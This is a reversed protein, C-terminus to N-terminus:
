QVAFILDDHDNYNGTGCGTPADAGQFRFRARIAQLSGAPLVYDRTWVQVGPATMTITTGIKTWSPAAANSTYYLELFDSAPTTWVWVTATIRVTKGAAFPGGDLTEVKLRDNSEDSHFTGSTGDACSDNITNPQNPEPGVSGRGLLLAPGSDCSKGIVTCKPAQLTPDWEATVDPVGLKFCLDDHDDFAGAGCAAASGGRRLRARVAAESGAPLTHNIGVTQLGNATPSVTGILSWAPASSDPAYYFDVRDQTFDTVWAKAEIRVQGGPAMIQGTPSFVRVYDISEDVHYTGSTGDPCADITNPQNPENGGTITDRGNVLTGTDCAQGFNFCRPADCTGGDYRSRRDTGYGNVRLNVVTSRTVAGSTGQVQFSYNGRPPDTAGLTVTLTSSASGNAPPSVTGPVFGCGVGSPNSACALSVTGTFGDTSTATCSTTASEGEWITLSSPSCSMTFDPGAFPTGSACNSVRGYCASSTGAAVVNYYYTRGNAVATDTYATGSTVEAILAKGFNCGAYGESRFVWYRTAGAVPTWSLANQFVGATVTLTSAATPGAACGSNTPTPTACAIGHRNYAAHLATMHPTGNAVNGDDDDAALWQMYGNTAGCGDSSSGCTCAHWNGINGSGQYFVKNGVIFATQDDLSFPAAQLDRRVFDWAAQRTATAACHVQRGCPGGGSNCATCMFGLATDPTNDAHKAWDADRVGSCDTDCHQGATQDEDQNFGTGDATMGCGPNVTQFFGHGVCSAQLRYIAAIDAYGESSNSLTGITDNDDIGHGWEHDFVAAIEGTNRCGGGSRYFNVSTGNWFANCTANLNMNSTLQQNLWANGPLYGKAQEVLKNLEYIGSRSAATNGASTGAPVTCDHDNNAGGLDLPMTTTSQNMAGCTDTTRVFSGSFTTTLTGGPYDVVGASDTFNNPAALATDVFSMPSQPQMTGCTEPTPCIGTNTLPYIGGMVRRKVYHNKDQFALVEGSQADVLVEWRPHEPDRQFLFSWVLSHRYGKGIPGVFAEGELYEQPSVPVIELRPQELIRDSLSRGGAWEFGKDLAEAATLAPRTRVDANGWTETGVLVLNGNNITGALRGDRVPVGAVQQPISFQWLEPTVQGVKIPGLQGADIGLLDAHARVFALAADGVVAADVESISRGLAQGLSALTVQNGVGRGPILPFAGIINTAAGSRPDIFVRGALAGDVASERLYQEWAGRNPLDGLVRELPVNANSLYLEPAFFEKGDLFANSQKPEFASASVAALSGLLGLLRAARSARCTHQRM